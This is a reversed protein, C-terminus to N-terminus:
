HRPPHPWTGRGQALNMHAVYLNRRATREGKDARERQEDAKATAQKEKDAAQEADVKAKEAKATAQKEKDAAQEAECRARYYNYGLASGVLLLRTMVAAVITLNTQKRRSQRLQELVQQEQRQSDQAAERQQREDRSVKIVETLVDHTLEIHQVDLREEVHLLRRQVLDDIASATSRAPHAAKPGKGLKHQGPFGADTLLEDEIFARVAPTQDGM